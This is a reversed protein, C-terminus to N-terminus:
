FKSLDFCAGPIRGNLHIIQSVSLSNDNLMYTRGGVTILKMIQFLLCLLKYCVKGTLGGKEMRSTPLKHKDPATHIRPTNSDNKKRYWEATLLEFPSQLM